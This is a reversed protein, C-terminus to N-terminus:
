KFQNFNVLNIKRNRILRITNSSTFQKYETIRNDSITGFYESDIKVAPHIVYEAFEITKLSLSGFIYDLDVKDKENLLIVIGDPSAIGNKHALIKWYHIIFLKIPEQLRWKLPFTMKGCKPKIYVRQHSRMKNIGLSKACKVFLRFLKFEVHINQHTNWYDPKGCLSCFREYQNKLEIIIEDEKIDNSRYRERFDQYNYFKGNSDILSPIDEPRSVPKGASLTWHIGVSINPYKQRLFAADQSNDMGVMVNTSTILGCEIGENIAQNVALSMGYDDATIILGEM